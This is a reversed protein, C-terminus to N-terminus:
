ILAASNITQRSWKQREVHQRLVVAEPTLINYSCWRSDGIKLVVRRQSQLERREALLDDWGSRCEPRRRSGSKRRSGEPGNTAIIEAESHGAGIEDDRVQRRLRELLGVDVNRRHLGFTRADCSRLSVEVLIRQVNDMVQLFLLYRQKWENPKKISLWGHERHILYALEFHNSGSLSLINSWRFNAIQEHLM